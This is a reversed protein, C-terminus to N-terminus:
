SLKMAELRNILEGKTEFRQSAMALNTFLTWAEVMFRWITEREEITHGHHIFKSRLAIRSEFLHLVDRQARAHLYNGPEDILLVRRTKHAALRLYFSLFWDRCAPDYVQGGFNYMRL